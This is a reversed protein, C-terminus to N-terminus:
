ENDRSQKSQIPAYLARADTEKTKEYEIAIIPLNNGGEGAGAEICPSIDKEKITVNSFRRTLIMLIKM